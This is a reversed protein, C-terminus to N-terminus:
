RHFSNHRAFLESETSEMQPVFEKDLCLMVRRRRPAIRKLLTRLQLVDMLWIPCM